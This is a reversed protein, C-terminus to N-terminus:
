SLMFKERLIKGLILGQSKRLFTKDDRDRFVAFGAVVISLWLGCAFLIKSSKLKFVFYSKM